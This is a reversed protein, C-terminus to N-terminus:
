WYFLNVILINVKIVLENLFFCFKVIIFSNRDNIVLMLKVFCYVNRSFGYDNELRIVELKGFFYKM